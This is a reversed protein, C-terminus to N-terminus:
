FFFFFIWPMMAVVKRARAASATLPTTAWSWLLWSWPVSSPMFCCLANSAASAALAKAMGERLPDYVLKM